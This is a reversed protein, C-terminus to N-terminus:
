VFLPRLDWLPYINLSFLGPLKDQSFVTRVKHSMGQEWGWALMFHQKQYGLLFATDAGSALIYVNILLSLTAQAAGSIANYNILLSARSRRRM